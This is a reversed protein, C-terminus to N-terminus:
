DKAFNQGFSCSFSLFQIAGIADGSRQIRWPHKDPSLSLLPITKSAFVYIHILYSEIVIKNLVCEVRTPQFFIYYISVVFEYTNRAM